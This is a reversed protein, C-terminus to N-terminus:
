RAAKVIVGYYRRRDTTKKTARFAQLQIKGKVIRFNITHVLCCDCCAMVYGRRVPQLWEGNKIHPYKMILEDVM